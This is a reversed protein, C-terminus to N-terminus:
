LKFNYSQQCGRLFEEVAIFLKKVDNITHLLRKPLKKLLFQMKGVQQCAIFSVVAAAAAALKSTM